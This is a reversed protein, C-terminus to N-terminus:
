LKIKNNFCCCSFKVDDFEKKNNNKENKKNNNYLVSCNTDKTSIEYPNKMSNIKNSINKIRNSNNKIIINYIFNNENKNYLIKDHIKSYNLDKQNFIKSIQSFSNENNKEELMKILINEEKLSISNKISSTDNLFVNNKNKKSKNQYIINNNINNNSIKNKKPLSEENKSIKIEKNISNVNQSM